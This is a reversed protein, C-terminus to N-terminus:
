NCNNESNPLLIPVGGEINHIGVSGETNKAGSLDRQRVNCVHLPVLTLGYTVLDKRMNETKM